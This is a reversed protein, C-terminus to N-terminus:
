MRAHAHASTQACEGAHSGGSFCVSLLTCLSPLLWAGVCLGLLLAVELLARRPPAPPAAHALYHRGVAPRVRACLARTRLSRQRVLACGMTWASHAAFAVHLSLSITDFMISERDKESSRM